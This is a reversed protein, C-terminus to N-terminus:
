KGKGRQKRIGIKRLRRYYDSDGRVKTKGTGAKGGKAGVTEFFKRIIDKDKL